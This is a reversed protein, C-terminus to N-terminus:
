AGGLIQRIAEVIARKPRAGRFMRKINGARDILYTTPIIQHRYHLDLTQADLRSAFLVPLKLGTQRLVEVLDDASGEESAAVCVVRAVQEDQIEQLAPLEMRCPGCWSAMFNLVLGRDTYLDSLRLRQGHTPSQPNVDELAFDFAREDVVTAATRARMARVQVFFLIALALVTLFIGGLLGTGFGGWFLKSERKM